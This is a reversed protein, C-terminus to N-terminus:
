SDIVSCAWAAFTQMGGMTDTTGFRGCGGNRRIVLSGQKKGLASVQLLAADLHMSQRNLPGLNLVAAYLETLLSSPGKRNKWFDLRREVKV